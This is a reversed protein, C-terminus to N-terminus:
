TAFAAMTVLPGFATFLPLFLLLRDADSMGYAAVRQIVSNTMSAHTHRVAKPLGTTGSSFPLVAELRSLDVDSLAPPRDAVDEVLTSFPMWGAPGDDDLSVRLGPLEIDASALQEIVQRDAVVAKGGTLRLAHTLEFARWSSNVLVAAAGVQSIGHIATIWEPRNGTAVVVRDGIAVGLRALSAAFATGAADLDRFSLAQDDFRVAVRDGHRDAADRLFAHLPQRPYHLSSQSRKVM